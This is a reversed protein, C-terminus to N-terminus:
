FKSQTEKYRQEKYEYSHSKNLFDLDFGYSVMMMMTLQATRM